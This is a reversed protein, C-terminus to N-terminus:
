SVLDSVESSADTSIHPQLPTAIISSHNCKFESTPKSLMLVREANDHSSKVLGHAFGAGYSAYVVLDSQSCVTLHLIRIVNISEVVERRGRVILGVNLWACSSSSESWRVIKNM